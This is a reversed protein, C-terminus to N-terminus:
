DLRVGGADRVWQSFVSSLLSGFVRGFVFKMHYWLHWVSRGM